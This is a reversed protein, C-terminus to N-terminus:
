FHALQIGIKLYESKSHIIINFTLHKTNPDGNYRIVFYVQLADPTSSFFIKLQEEKKLVDQFLFTEVHLGVCRELRKGRDNALIFATRSQVCSVNLQGVVRQQLLGLALLLLLQLFLRSLHLLHFRTQSHYECILVDICLCRLPVNMIPTVNHLTLPAPPLANQSLLAKPKHCLHMITTFFQGYKYSRM